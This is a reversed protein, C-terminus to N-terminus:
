EGTGDYHAVPALWAKGGYATCDFSQIWTWANSKICALKLIQFVLRNNRKFNEGELPMQYRRTKDDDFFLANDDDLEPCVIYDILVKAAGMTASLKNVFGIQWNNWCADTQYKCPDTINIDVKDHNNNSEKRAMPALSVEQAWMELVAQLGRKDPDKVWYVLAQLRTIQRTVLILRRAAAIPRSAMRKVMETIDFDSNMSAFAEVCDLGEINIFTARNAATAIGCITLVEHVPNTPEPEASAADAVPEADMQRHVDNL